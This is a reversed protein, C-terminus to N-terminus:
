LPQHTSEGKLEEIAIPIIKRLHEVNCHLIENSQSNLLLNTTELVCLAYEIKKSDTNERDEM